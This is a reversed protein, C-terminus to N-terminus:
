LTGEPHTSLGVTQKTLPEFCAVIGQNNLALSSFRCLM